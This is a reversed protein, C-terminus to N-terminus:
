SAIRSARDASLLPFPAPQMLAPGHVSLFLIWALSWGFGATTLWMTRQDLAEALGRAIAAGFLLVVAIWHRRRPLLERGVTRRMTVRAAVALIMPGMAAMGLAHTQVLPPVLGSRAAAMALLGPVLGAYGICLMRNAQGLRLGPLSVAMIWVAAAFLAFTGLEGRDVFGISLVACGLWLRPRRPEVLGRRVHAEATFSSVLRSGVLFILISIAIPLSGAIDWGEVVMAEAAVMMLPVMALPVKDWRRAGPVPWLIMLALPFSLLIIPWRSDPFSLSALQAGLALAGVLLAPVPFSRGTWAKQATMVYGCITMGGFGFLGLRVHALRPDTLPFLWLWPLVVAIAAAFTFFVGAPHFILVPRSGGSGKVRM